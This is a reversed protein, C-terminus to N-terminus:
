GQVTVSGLAIADGGEAEGDSLFVLQFKTRAPITDVVDSEVKLSATDGDITFTWPDATVGTFEFYLSGAPFDVPQDNVDLNQFSWRFDRGKILVLQENDLETGITVASGKM